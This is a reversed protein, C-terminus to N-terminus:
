YPMEWISRLCPHFMSCKGLFDPHELTQLVTFIHKGNDLRLRGKRLKSGSGTKNGQEPYM